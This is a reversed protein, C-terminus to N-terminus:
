NLFGKVVHLNPELMDVKNKLSETESSQAFSNTIFAFVFLSVIVVLSLYRM